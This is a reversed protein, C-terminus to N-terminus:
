ARSRPRSSSPSGARRGARSARARSGTTAARALARFSAAGSGPSPARAANGIRARGPRRGRPARRSSACRLRGLRPPVPAGAVGPVPRRADGHGRGEQGEAVGRAAAKAAASCRSRSRRGHGRERLERELRAREAVRADRGFALREHEHPAVSAVEVDMELAHASGVGDVQGRVGGDVVGLGGERGVPRLDGEAGLALAAPDEDHARGPLRDPPQGVLAVVRRPGGVCAFDDEAGPDRLREPRVRAVRAARKVRDARRGALLAADTGLPLVGDLRAPRRAPLADREPTQTVPPLAIQPRDRARALRRTDDAEGVVGVEVPAGHPRGVAPM